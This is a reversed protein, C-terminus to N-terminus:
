KKPTKESIKVDERLFPNDHFGSEKLNEVTAWTDYSDRLKKSHVFFYIGRFKMEKVEGDSDLIPERKTVITLVGALTVCNRVETAQSRIAKALLHFSQSTGLIVRRNKRNQTIVSLMEPPFNRSQNSSFWNQLEDMIAIVGKQENKFDILQKWHKLAVDQYKYKTNSICKAKPYMYQLELAYQFMASSKGGGQRGTFIVMGQPRFFDPPRNYLDEVYQRPADILIRGFFSQKPLRRVSGWNLRRGKFYELFFFFGVSMLFLAIVSACIILPWKLLSVIVSFMNKLIEFFM